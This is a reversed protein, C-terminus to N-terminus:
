QMVRTYKDSISFPFNLAKNLEVKKYTLELKDITKSRVFTLTIEKPIHKLENEAFYSKYNVDLTANDSYDTILIRKLELRKSFFYELGFNRYEGKYFYEKIYYRDTEEFSQQSFDPDDKFPNKGLIVSQFFVYSSPLTYSQSLRSINDQYYTKYYRDIYGVSDRDMIMRFLEIGMVPAVSIMLVSDFKLRIFGKFSRKEDTGTYNATFKSIELTEFGSTATETLRDFRKESLGDFPEGTTAIRKTVSCSVLFLFVLIIYSYVKRYNSM